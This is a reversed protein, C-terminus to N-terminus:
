PGFRGRDHRARDASIRCFRRCGAKGASHRARESIQCRCHRPASSLEWNSAFQPSHVPRRDTHGDIRLVWDIQDPVSAAIDKLSDAVHKLEAKGNVGLEASGTAFLVESQFVFRDGEVRIDPRDGLVERLKGFFESRYKALEAVKSALAVNLRRGLDAIQM